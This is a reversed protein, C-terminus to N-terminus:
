SWWARARSRSPTWPADCRASAVGADPRRRQWLQVALCVDRSGRCMACARVCALFITLPVCASARSGLPAPGRRAVCRRLECFEPLLADTVNLTVAGGAAEEAAAREFGGGAAAVWEEVQELPQQMNSYSCSGAILVPADAMVVTM